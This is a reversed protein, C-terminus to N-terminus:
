FPDSKTQAKEGLAMNGGLIDAFLDIATQKADLLAVGGMRVVRSNEKTLALEERMEGSMGLRQWTYWAQCHNLAFYHWAMERIVVIEM